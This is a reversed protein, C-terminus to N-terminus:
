CSIAASQLLGTSCLWEAVLAPLRDPKLASLIEDWVYGYVHIGRPTMNKLMKSESSAQVTSCNDSVCIFLTSDLQWIEM